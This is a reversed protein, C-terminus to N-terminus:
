NKKGLSKLFADAAARSNPDISAAQLATQRALDPQGNDRYTAALQALLQVDRPTGALLERYIRILPEYQKRAAYIATVREYDSRTLTISLSKIKALQREAAADNGSALYALYLDLNPEKVVPEFYRAGALPPSLELGKEIAAAQEAYRGMWGFTKAMEFYLQPRNPSLQQATKLLELNKELLSQATAPSSRRFLGVARNVISALYSRHRASRPEQEVSQQLMEIAQGAAALKDAEPADKSVLLESVYDAFEERVRYRGMTQYDSAGRYMDLLPQGFRIKVTKSRIDNERSYAIAQNLLLNSEFPTWVLFWFAPLLLVASGAICLSGRGSIPAPAKLPLEGTRTEGDQDLRLVYALVLYLIVDSNITDFIALGQLVYALLLAAILLSRAADKTRLWRRFLSIFILGYLVLFAALGLFGTTTGIDLFINHARDFWPMSEWTDIIQPPFNRDFGFSYNELGWGLVPRELMARASAKWAWFRASLLDQVSLRAFRALAPHGQVWASERKIWVTASVSLVAILVAAAAWRVPKRPGTVAYLVSLAALSGVLGLMAGRTQSVYLWYLDSAGVLILVLAGVLIRKRLFFWVLSIAHLGFAFLLLPPLSLGRILVGPGTGSNWVEMVILLGDCLFLLALWTKAALPYAEERDKRSLFWLALLFNLLMVCAFWTANGTAGRIREYPNSQNTFDLEMYQILGTFGMLVGFFLTATFLILWDRDRKITQALVLCYALLHLQSFMGGMRAFDGWWSSWPAVSIGPLSSLLMIGFYALLAGTLRNLRPRYEPRAVALIVYLVAMLQVAARFLISKLFLFPYYFRYSTVLPLFLCVCGLVLIAAPLHRYVTAVIKDSAAGPDPQPSAAPGAKRKKSTKSM